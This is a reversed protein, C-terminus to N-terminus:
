AQKREAIRLRASRSRNNLSIEAEDAVIAKRSILMFPSLNNGFFDKKEEGSINGTKMFNKVMRDELSHYSIVVLRGGPKLVQVSQQLLAELAQIEQNVEIRLAQFVQALIKHEKGFPLFRAIAAKLQMTTELPASLRAEAIAQAMRFAQQVEGYETLLKALAETSYTQIIDAATVPNNQNMRMDLRADFRTSFGRSAEDFQFSSVGLDALIGDVQQINNLLLFNRMYMFNEPIFTIRPDDLLNARADRDQDFAILRLKPQQALIEKSHGGGGYTVDVYTGNPRLNLGEVSKHLLVPNHYM